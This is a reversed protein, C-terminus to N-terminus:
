GRPKDIGTVRIAVRLLESSLRLGAHQAAGLNILFRVRRNQTIFQIMGGRDVFNPMDSVTLISASGLQDLIANLNADELASIFIVRCGTADGSTAIHRVVISKRNITQGVVMADLTAGFPDAGLVCIPFAAAEASSKETPWEVFKEFNCLYAAKVQYENPAAAGAQQIRMGLVLVVAAIVVTGRAPGHRKGSPNRVRTSQLINM